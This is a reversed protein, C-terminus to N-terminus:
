GWPKMQNRGRNAHRNRHLHQHVKRRHRSRYDPHRPQPIAPQTRHHIQLPGDRNRRPITPPLRDRGEVGQGRDRRHPPRCREPDRARGKETPPPTIAAGTRPSIVPKAKIALIARHSAFSDYAKDASVVAVPAKGKALLGPLEPGDHHDSGTLTHALIEATETDVALHLKRWVRRKGSGHQRMKWEGEGFLKLGTSDIALHLPGTQAGRRLEPVALDAARRSLTSYHPVPITLGLMTKLSSLFGQTQQLPLKYVARISLACRIAADSYRMGKGGVARWDRLVEDHLWLTVGGRSALARNYDRWNTVRWTRKAAPTEVPPPSRKAM